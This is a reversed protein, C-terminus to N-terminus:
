WNEKEKVDQDKRLMGIVKGGLNCKHSFGQRRVNGM